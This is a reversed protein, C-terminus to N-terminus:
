GSLRAIRAAVDVALRATMEAVYRAPDGTGACLATLDMAWVAGTHRDGRHSESFVANAARRGLVARDYAKAGLQSPFAALLERQLEPHEDTYLRVKDDDTLWDLDRWVECGLVRPPREAVPLARCAAIVRLAVAVHTDHTDSLAHTYVLEPKTARLLTVLDSVVALEGADKVDGSSYDLFVQAGYRGLTAAHEQERRRAERLAGADLPASGQPSGVGDTVLAGCFWREAQGFCAVIGHIAMIELDDAHAGIGLHTTRALAQARESGDPVFVSSGPRSFM